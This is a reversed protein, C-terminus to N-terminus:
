FTRARPALGLRVRGADEMTARQLWTQAVVAHVDRLGREFPASEFLAASGATRYMQEVVAVSTEGAHVMARRLRARLPLSIPNGRASTECLLTVADVLNTRAAELMAEARAVEYQTSTRDRLSSGDAHANMQRTALEILGEITTRAIGLAVFAFTTGLTTDLLPFIPAPTAFQRRAPLSTHETPVFVDDLTYETSGTGRMGGVHWTDLVTAATVPVFAHVVQPEQGSAPQGDADTVFCGAAVWTAHRIGSAFPWRGSIVYGGPVEVARGRPAFTGTVFAGPEAAIRRAEEAPLFGLRVMGGIGIEFIWGASGDYTAALEVLEMSTLLDVGAGGLEVPLLIRFLDREFFADAVPQAIRRLQDSELQHARILPGLEHVRSFLDERTTITHM